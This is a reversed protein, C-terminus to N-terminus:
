ADQLVVSLWHGPVFHAFEEKDKEFSLYGDADVRYDDARIVTARYSGSVYDRIEVTYTNM